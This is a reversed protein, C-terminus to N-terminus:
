QSNLENEEIWLGTDKVCDELLLVLDSYKEPLESQNFQTDDTLM